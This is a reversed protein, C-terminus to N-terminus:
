EKIKLELTWKQGMNTFCCILNWGRRKSQNSRAKYIIYSHTTAWLAESSINGM